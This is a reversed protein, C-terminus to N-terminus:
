QATDGVDHATGAQVGAAEVPLMIHFTTGSDLESEVELRGSHAQIIQHAIPLGLGTGEAKTTFFPTFLKRRDDPRVYSGTNRVSLLVQEAEGAKRAPRVGISVSVTGGEPTAQFANRVVNIVARTLTERDALVRVLDPGYDEELSVGGDRHEIACFQVCERVVGQLDHPELHTVPPHSFELLSEVLTNLQDITRLITQTYQRKPDDSRFDEQILEVLGHLSGLPNRIEHAMGAALRGLSALQDTREVQERLQKLEAVNKFSLVIGRHRDGEGRLPSITVGLAVATGDSAAANVEVSSYTQQEGLASVIMDRLARNEPIDGFVASFHQGVVERAPYGLTKQAVANFSTVTGESSITMLGGEMSDVVHSLPERDGILEGEAGVAGRGPAAGPRTGLRIIWGMGFGAAVGAATAAIVAATMVLADERTEMGIVYRLVVWVATGCALAALLIVVSM